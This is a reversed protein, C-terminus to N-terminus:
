STTDRSPRRPMPSTWRALSVLSPAVDGQLGQRGAECVIGFAENAEPSFRLNERRQIMRVDARDIPQLFRVSLM